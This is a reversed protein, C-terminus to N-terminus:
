EKGCKPCYKVDKAYMDLPRKWGCYACMYNHDIACRSYENKIKDQEEKSLMYLKWQM